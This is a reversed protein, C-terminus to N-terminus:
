LSLSQDFPNLQTRQITLLSSECTLNMPLSSGSGGCPEDELLRPDPPPQHMPAAHSLRLAAAWPKGDQHTIRCTVQSWTVTKRDWHWQAERRIWLKIGRCEWSAWPRPCCRTGAVIGDERELYNLRESGWNWLLAGSQGLEDKWGAHQAHDRAVPWGISFSGRTTGAVTASFHQHIHCTQQGRPLATFLFSNKLLHPLLEPTIKNM